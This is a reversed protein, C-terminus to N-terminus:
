MFKFTYVRVKQDCNRLLMNNFLIRSISREGNRGIRGSEQVYSEITNSPGFHICKMVDSRNVWMGFSITCVVVRLHCVSSTIQEVIHNNTQEATGGHFMEVLRYEPSFHGVWKTFQRVLNM